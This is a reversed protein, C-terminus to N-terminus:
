FITEWEHPEQIKEEIQIEELQKELYEHRHEEYYQYQQVLEPSGEYHGQSNLILEGDNVLEKFAEVVEGRSHEEYVGNYEIELIDDLTGAGWIIIHTLIDGKVTKLYRIPPLPM